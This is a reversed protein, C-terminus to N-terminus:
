QRRRQEVDVMVTDYQEVFWCVSNIDYRSILYENKGEPRFNTVIEDHWGTEFRVGNVEFIYKITKQATNLVTEIHKFHVKINGDGIAQALLKITPSKPNNM